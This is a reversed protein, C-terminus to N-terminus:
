NEEKLLEEQYEDIVEKANANDKLKKVFDEPQKGYVSSLCGINEILKELLETELTYSQESLLPRESLVVKKALAPNTSLLRWYIFGRGRLDPNECEKTIYKFLDKLIETGDEPRHLYLKMCSILIQHQVVDPEDKFNQAFNAMLEDANEIM